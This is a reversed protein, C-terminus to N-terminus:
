LNYTIMMLFFQLEHLVISIVHMWLSCFHSSISEIFDGIKNIWSALLSSRPM